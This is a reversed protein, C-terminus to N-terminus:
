SCVQFDIHMKRYFLYFSVLAVGTSILDTIPQAMLVSNLPNKTLLLPLVYILPILLIVKRLIVIMLSQKAKGFAIFSQQCAIQLGIILQGLLYINMSATTATMIVPDKNFIGIFVTPFMYVVCMSLFPYLLCCLFQIKLTKQINSFNKAGYNYGLIPQAGRCIGVVPLMTLLLLTNMITLSSLALDGGFKLLQKNYALMILTEMAQMIFSAMGLTLIQLILKYDLKFHEKKLKLLSDNSFLFRLIWISSCGQAIVTAWAAGAIGMHFLVIFVYDLIINVVTGIFLSIMGIKARGQTNIYPNLGLVAQVFITGCVYIKLYSTAYDITNISAGFAYLIPEGFMLFLATLTASIIILLTISNGLITEAKNQNNEGICIAVLPAGGNGILVSFASILMAIPMVVGIAAMVMGGDEMHGIFIRDVINYLLTSLQAFIAPISLRLLTQGIKPGGLDISNSM